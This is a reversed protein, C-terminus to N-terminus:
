RSSIQSTPDLRVRSGPTLKLTSGDGLKIELVGDAGTNLLAAETVQQGVQAGQGNIQAGGSVLSVTATGPQSKLLEKPIKLTSGIHLRTPKGSHNIESIKQWDAANELFRKGIGSLTDGKVVVYEVYEDAPSQAHAPLGLVCAIAGVSWRLARGTHQLRATLASDHLRFIRMASINSDIATVISRRSCFDRSQVCISSQNQGALYPYGHNQVSSRNGPGLRDRPYTRAVAAKGINKLLILALNFEKQTLEIHVGDRWADHTRTDLKFPGLEFVREVEPKSRTRRLLAKSRAVLEGIRSSKVMFDDAGAELAEIVDREADRATVLLIPMESNMQNRVTKIVDIGPVDPLLWDVLLLDFSERKLDQLFERSLRYTKCTFGSQVMAGSVTELLHPDDDLIAVRM